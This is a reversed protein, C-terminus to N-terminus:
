SNAELQGIFRELEEETEAEIEIFRVALGNSFRRVVECKFAGVEEVIISLGGEDPIAAATELSAGGLSVDNLLADLEEESLVAKVLKTTKVRKHRRKDSGNSDSPM